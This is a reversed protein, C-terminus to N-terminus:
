RLAPLCAPLAEYGDKLLEDVKTPQGEQRSLKEVYSRLLELEDSRTWREPVMGLAQVATVPPMPSKIRRDVPTHWASLRVLMRPACRRLNDAVALADGSLFNPPSRENSLHCLGCSHFFPQLDPREFASPDVETADLIAAPMDGDDVCCWSRERMGLEAFLARMLNARVLPVGDFLAPQLALLRTVAGRVQAFDDLGIAEVSAEIRESEATTWRIELSSIARGDPLRAALGKRKPAARLVYQSGARAIAGSLDVDRIQGAPGFTVWDIRGNGDRNFRGALNIGDSVSADSACQLKFRTAAPADPVASCQARYVTRQADASAQQLLHSDLAHFDDAAFFKTWGAILPYADMGGAFRWVERAPRPTLPDLDASVHAAAILSSSLQGSGGGGYSSTTGGFPNRDPLSSQAVSLGHPWQERWVRSFTSVFDSQYGPSSASFDQEGSLGYQLVATFAGARCRRAQMRDRADACGQQWVRQLTILANARGAAKEIDDPFDINEQRTVQLDALQAGLLDRVKGNANTEGWVAKSFIPAHNQHCSTCIARNAYFVKPRAGARYDKVLQFEFRGAPENYSIVELVGTKEVYGIYLRDKLLTGADRENTVPEGIVAFVIRPNKFFDPAAAARQLSRGMPIMVVRTGGAYEQQGLRAQIREVLASFPFPIRYANGTATRETVLHDFVSRGVPPLDAGPATPDVAWSAYDTERDYVSGPDAPAGPDVFGIACAIAASAVVIRRRPSLKV